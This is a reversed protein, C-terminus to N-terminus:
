VQFLQHCFVLRKEDVSHNYSSVTVSADVMVYKEFDELTLGEVLDNQCFVFKSKEILKYCTEEIKRMKDSGDKELQINKTTYFKEFVSVLLGFPTLSSLDVRDDFIIKTILYMSIPSSVIKELRFQKIASYIRGLYINDDIYFRLVKKFDVEAFGNLRFYKQPRFDGSLSTLAYPRSTLVIKAKTLIKRSLISALWNGPESKDDFTLSSDSFENLDITKTLLDLGDIVLVLRAQNKCLWDVFQKREDENLSLDVCSYKTIFQDLSLKTNQNLQNLSITLCLFDKKYFKRAVINTLFTKGSGAEGSISIYPNSNLGEFRFSNNM